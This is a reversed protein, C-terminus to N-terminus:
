RIDARASHWGACPSSLFACSRKCHAGDAGVSLLEWRDHFCASFRRQWPNLVRGVSGWGYVDVSRWDPRSIFAWAVGTNKPAKSEPTLRSVIALALAGNVLRITAFSVPDILNGGLALRCLISNAAFALLTLSTIIVIRM